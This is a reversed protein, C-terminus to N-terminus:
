SRQVISVRIETIPPHSEADLSCNDLLEIAPEHSIGVLHLNTLVGLYISQYYCIVRVFAFLYERDRSLALSPFCSLYKPSVRNIRVSADRSKQRRYHVLLALANDVRNTSVRLPEYSRLVRHIISPLTRPGPLRGCYCRGTDLAVIIAPENAIYTYGTKGEGKERRREGELRLTAPGDRCLNHEQSVPQAVLRIADVPHRQANNDIKNNSNAPLPPASPHCHHSIQRSPFYDTTCSEKQTFSVFESESAYKVLVSRIISSEHFSCGCRRRVRLAFPWRPKKNGRFKM